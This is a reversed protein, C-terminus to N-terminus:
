LQNTIDLPSWATCHLAEIRDTCSYESREVYLADEGSLSLAFWVILPWKTSVAALNRGNQKYCQERSHNVSTFVFLYIDATIELVAGPFSCQNTFIQETGIFCFIKVM